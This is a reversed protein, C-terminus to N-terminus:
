KRRIMLALGGLLLVSLTAPEPTWFAVGGDEGTTGQDTLWRDAAEYVTDAKRWEPIKAGAMYGSLIVGAAVVAAIFVRQAQQYRWTRRRRAVWLVAADLGEMAAAYLFPLVASRAHFFGGRWGPFTFVLSHAMYVAVLYLFALQFSLYGRLRYFGAVAFPLLFVM